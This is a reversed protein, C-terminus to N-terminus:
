FPEIDLDAKADLNDLYKELAELPMPKTVSRKKSDVALYAPSTIPIVKFLTLGHESAREKLEDELTM